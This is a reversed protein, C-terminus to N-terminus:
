RGHMAFPGYGVSMSGSNSHQSFHTEIKSTQGSFEIVTNAALVFSTPYAPFQSHDAIQTMVAPDSVKTLWDQLKAPGPSLKVNDAVDLEADNFLEGYLWPRQINVAMAQFSITVDCKAMASYMDQKSEEHSYAGGLSFLGFNLGGSVSMGWSSEDKTQSFSSASYSVLIDTWPDAEATDDTSTFM